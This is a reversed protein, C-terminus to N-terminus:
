SSHAYESKSNVVGRLYEVFEGLTSFERTDGTGARVALSGSGLEKDGIIVMCPAKILQAARIRYNLTNNSADLECRLGAEQLQRVVGRSYENHVQAVPLVVAQVPALWLPFHGAYHEIIIALFREISGFLARHVILPRHERGDEGVYALGFAEPLSCDIKITSLQWQRGLADNVCIDVKPGYFAGGGERVSFVEGSRELADKLVKEAFSWEDNKGMKKEPRSSLFLHFDSFGFDHLVELSLELIRDIEDDIQERSCFIHADDQTFGRVTIAGLLNESGETRYVTGWETFRVPLERYSRLKSKYIQVHMPCNMPKLHYKEGEFDMGPFMSEQYFEFHGSTKWLDSKGLHPTYVFDYGSKQHQKRYYEEILQRIVAGRPHWLLLGSGVDDNVSFLDLERGLKRHDRKKAEEISSLRDSLDERRLFATAYIRQLVQRSRDGRWYVDTIDLLKFYGKIKTSLVYPGMGPDVFEGTKYFSIKKEDSSFEELLELKLTEQSSTLMRLAEEPSVEIREFYFDALIVRRMEEEIESFEEQALPEKNQFDCYFGNQSAQGVGLKIEPYRRKLAQAMIHCFSHWYFFRSDPSDDSLYVPFANGGHGVPSQLDFLATGIRLGVLDHTREIGFSDAVDAAIIGSPFTRGGKGMLTIVVSSM